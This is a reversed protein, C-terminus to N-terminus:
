ELEFEGAYDLVQESGASLGQTEEAAAQLSASVEDLLRQRREAAAAAEAEALRLREEEQRFENNIFRVLSEIQPRKPSAPELALYQAYDTLAARLSGNKIRANARNLYASAYGPDAEIAQTYYQEAFVTEGGTFYLNGLNFAILASQNGARPLIRRFAAIADSNRDLQGYAIGLYLAAQVHAPDESVAAELFALAEQPKDDLFLEEGRAFSTQSFVEIQFSCWLWLALLVSKKMKVGVRRNNIICYIM